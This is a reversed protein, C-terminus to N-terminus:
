FKNPIEEAHSVRGFLGFNEQAEYSIAILLCKNWDNARM